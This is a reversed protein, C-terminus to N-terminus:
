HLGWYELLIVKNKLDPASMKPGYIHEGQAIEQVTSAFATSLMMMFIITIRLM